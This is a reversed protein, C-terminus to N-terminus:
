RPAALHMLWDAPVPRWAEGGRRVRLSLAAGGTAQAYRLVFPHLGRRLAIMGTKEEAGHYGDNDVVLKGAIGLNSGDDSVLAFEYLGDDPARLYGSFRIGYREPREDGRRELAMVVATRVVRATDLAAVLRANLEHYTYRLGPSLTATDVTAADVLTTRTFTASRVNTARGDAAFARAAVRAGREDVVLMFPARYATSTATPDTGDITYRIVGQPIV